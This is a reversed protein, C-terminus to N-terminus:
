QKKVLEGYMGPRRFKDGTVECERYSRLKDVDLETLYIGEAEPAELICMDRVGEEERLWAVGGFLTSHGNCDPQGQAYNCTAVATM